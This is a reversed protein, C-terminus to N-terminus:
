YLYKSKVWVNIHTHPTQTYPTRQLEYTPDSEVLILVWCFFLSLPRGMTNIYVGRRVYSSFLLPLMFCCSRNRRSTRTACCWCSAAASVCGRTLVLSIMFKNQTVHIPCSLDVRHHCVNDSRLLLGHRSGLELSWFYTFLFWALIICRKYRRSTTDFMQHQLSGQSTSPDTRGCSSSRSTCHRSCSHAAPYLGPCGGGRGRSRCWPWDVCRCAWTSMSGSHEWFRNKNLGIREADYLWSPCTSYVKEGLEM